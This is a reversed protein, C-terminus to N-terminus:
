DNKWYKFINDWKKDICLLSENLEKVSIYKNDEIILNFDRLKKLADDSEFDFFKNQTKKFYDEIEKDLSNIEDFKIRKRKYLFSYLIIMENFEQIEAENILYTIAGAGNNLNQLYLNTSLNKLYREVLSKYETFSRLSYSFLGFLVIWFSIQFWINPDSGSSLLFSLFKYISFGIGGILPLSVKAIDIRRIKIRRSPFIMELDLEPVNKFVKIYIKESSLVNEFVKIEEKPKFIFVIRSFIEFEYNRKKLFKKKTIRDEREGRYYLEYFELKDFDIKFNIGWPSSKLIAEKLKEDSVKNYNARVLLGRIEELFIKRKNKFTKNYNFYKEVDPNYEIYKEQISKSIGLFKHHTFIEIIECIEKFKTKEEKNYFAECFSVTDEKFFPIFNEYYEKM